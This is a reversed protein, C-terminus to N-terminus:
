FCLLCFTFIDEVSVVSLWAGENQLSTRQYSKWACAISGHHARADKSALIIASGAACSIVYQQYWNNGAAVVEKERQKGEEGNGARQLLSFRQLYLAICTNGGRCVTSNKISERVSSLSIQSISRLIYKYKIIINNQCESRHDSTCRVDIAGLHVLCVQM